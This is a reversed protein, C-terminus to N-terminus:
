GKQGKRPQEAKGERATGPTAKRSAPAPREERKEEGPRAEGPRGLRRFSASLWSGMLAQFVCLGAMVGASRLEELNMLRREPTGLIYLNMLVLLFIAGLLGYFLGNWLPRRPSMRDIFLGGLAFVLLALLSLSEILLVAAFATALGWVSVKGWAVDQRLIDWVKEAFGATGRLALRLVKM